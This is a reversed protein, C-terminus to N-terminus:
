AEWVIDKESVPRVRDREFPCVCGLFSSRMNRIAKRSNKQRGTALKKFLRVYVIKHRLEVM